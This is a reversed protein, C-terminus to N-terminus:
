RIQKTSVLIAGFSAEPGYRAIAAPGKLVEISRIIDSSMREVDDRGATRGDIFYFINQSPASAAATATPSPKTSMLIAGDVAESGYRDIAATSKLIQIRDSLDRSDRWLADCSATHGDIFCFGNWVDPTSRTREAASVPPQPTKSTACSAAAVALGIVILRRM